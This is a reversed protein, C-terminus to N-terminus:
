PSITVELQPSAIDTSTKKGETNLVKDNWQTVFQPLNVHVHSKCVMNGSPVNEAELLSVWEQLSGFSILYSIFVTSGQLAKGPTHNNLGFCVEAEAAAWTVGTYKWYTYNLM